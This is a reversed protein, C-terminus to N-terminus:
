NHPVALITCYNSISKPPNTIERVGIAESKRILKETIQLQFQLTSAMTYSKRLLSLSLASAASYKAGLRQLYAHLVRGSLRMKPTRADERDGGLQARQRAYERSEKM